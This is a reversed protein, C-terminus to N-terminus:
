TLSNMAASAMMAAGMGVCFLAEGKYDNHVALNAKNQSAQYWRYSAYALVMVSICLSVNRDSPGVGQIFAGACAGILVCLFATRGDIEKDRRILM